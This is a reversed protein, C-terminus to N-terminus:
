QVAQAPQTVVRTETKAVRPGGDITDAYEALRSAYIRAYKPDLDFSAVEDGARMEIVVVKTPHLKLGTRNHTITRVGVILTPLEDRTALGSFDLATASESQPYAQFDEAYTPNRM